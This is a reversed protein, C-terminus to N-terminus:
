PRRRVTVAVPPSQARRRQKRGCLRRGEVLWRGHLPQLRLVEGLTHTVRTVTLRLPDGGDDTLTAEMDDWLAIAELTRSHRRYHAFLGVSMQLRADPNLSGPMAHDLWVLEDADPHPLPSLLIGDLVSFIATAGGIGLALTLVTASTFAPIRVLRRAAHRLEPTPARLQDSWERTAGGVLGGAERVMFRLRGVLGLGAADAARARFTEVIAAGYAEKFSRPYLSLLRRYFRAARDAGRTRSM